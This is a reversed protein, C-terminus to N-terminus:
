AFLLLYDPAKIFSFSIHRGYQKFNMGITFMLWHQQPKKHTKKENRKTIIQMARTEDALLSETSGCISFM